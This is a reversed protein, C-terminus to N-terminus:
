SPPYSPPPPLTARRTQHSSDHDPPQFRLNDRAETTVHVNGVESM